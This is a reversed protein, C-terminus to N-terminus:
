FIENNKQRNKMGKEREITYTSRVSGKIDGFVKQRIKGNWKINSRCICTTCAPLDTERIIGLHTFNKTKNQRINM